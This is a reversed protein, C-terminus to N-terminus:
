SYVSGRYDGMKVIIMSELVEFLFHLRGIRLRYLNKKKGKVRVIDLHVKRSNFYRLDLLKNRINESNELSDIFGDLKKKIKIEYM